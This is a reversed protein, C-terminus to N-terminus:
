LFDPVERRMFDSRKRGEREWNEHQKRLFDPMNRGM